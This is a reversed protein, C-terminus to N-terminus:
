TNAINGGVQGGDGVVAAAGPAEAAVEVDERWAVDAVAHNGKGFVGTEHRAQKLIAELFAAAKASVAEAVEEEGGEAVNGAVEVVGNALGTFDEGDAAADKWGGHGIAMEFGFELVAGDDGALGADAAAAAADAADMEAGAAAGAGNGFGESAM